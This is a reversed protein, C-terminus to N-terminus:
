FTGTLDYSLKAAEARTINRTPRITQDDYGNVVGLHTLIQIHSVAYQPISGTDTFNLEAGYYTKRLVRGMIAMAEARTIPASPDFKVTGDSEQKGSIIGLNYLTTIETLAWKPISSNDTFPLLVSPNREVGLLNCMMVSFEARTINDNPKFYRKGDIIQGNLIGSDALTNIYPSAWQPLEDTFPSEDSNIFNDISKYSLYGSTDGVIVSIRHTSAAFDSPLDATITHTTSDYSFDISTNDLMVFINNSKIADPDGGTITATFVNNSLTPSITYGTYTVTVNITKTTSGASVTITGTKAGMAATFVGNTDITGSDTSWTYCDDQSILQSMGFAATASLDVREGAKIALSNIATDNNKITISTPNEIVDVPTSGTIENYTASISRMGSGIFQATGDASVSGEGTVSYEIGEPLSVAYTGNDTAKTTFKVKAGSLVKQGYPYLFLKSVENTKPLNNVLFIYSACSRHSGDSPSNITKMEDDGPYIAMISTSGGGDLNLAEVCGLEKLRKALTILRVGYSHSQRGDITYFMVSGDAKIGVATRPNASDALGSEAEGKTLLKEQGGTAYAVNNWRIDAASINIEVSDGVALAAVKDYKESAASTDISLVYKGEPIDIAGDNIEVSEVIGRITSGSKMNGEVSGIIVNLGNTTAKTTSAFDRNFMYVSYPQRYKNYAEIRVAKEGDTTRLNFSYSPTGIFVSGDNSFAVAPRDSDSTRIISESVVVGMPVGTQLSFFDSNIAAVPYKGNSKLHNAVQTITQRGYIDPGYAVISTSGSNPTYTFYNETQYGVDDSYFKSYGLTANNLMQITYNIVDSGLISAAFVPQFCMAFILLCSVIVKTQKKM